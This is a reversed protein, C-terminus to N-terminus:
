NWGDGDLDVGDPQLPFESLPMSLPRQSLLAGSRGSVIFLRGRHDDDTRELPAGIALEPVSDGDVDPLTMLRCGFGCTLACPSQAPGTETWIWPRHPPKQLSSAAILAVWLM